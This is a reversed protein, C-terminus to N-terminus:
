IVVEPKSEENWYKGIAKTRREKWTKFRKISRSMERTERFLDFGALTFGFVWLFVRWGDKFM